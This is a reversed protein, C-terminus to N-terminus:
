IEWFLRLSHSNHNHCSFVRLCNQLYWWDILCDSRDQLCRCKSQTSEPTRVGLKPTEIPNKVSTDAISTARELIWSVSIETIVCFRELDIKVWGNDCILLQKRDEPATM